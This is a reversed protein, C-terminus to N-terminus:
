ECNELENMILNRTPFYSFIEDLKMRIRLDTGNNDSYDKSVICHTENTLYEQKTCIKLVGNVILGAEQLIFPPVLNHNMSPVHLASKVVMIYTKLIYPCDYAVAVDVIPVAAMQSCDESFPRVDASKGSRNIVTSHRGVVAMNVHSNLQTSTMEDDKDDVSTTTDWIVSIRACLYLNPVVKLEM